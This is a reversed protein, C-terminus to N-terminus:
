LRSEVQARTLLDSIGLTTSWTSLYGPDLKPGSVRLVEIVDRWQTTSVGGGQQVWLLKRLVTDEPSKLFLSEGPRVVTPSRREFESDDFAGPRRIFLDVKMMSPLHFINWSSRRQVAEVLSEVDVEYDPGLEAALVTVADRRLDVVFDIANTSRPEGQVSSAM